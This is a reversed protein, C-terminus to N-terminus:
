IKLLVLDVREYVVLIYKFYFTGYFDKNKFPIPLPYRAM